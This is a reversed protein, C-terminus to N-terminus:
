RTLRLVGKPRAPLRDVKSMNIGAEAVQRELDERFDPHALDILCRAREELPLFKLHVAGYETVVWETIHEPTTVRTGLAFHPVINSIVTGDSRTTTSPLCVISKGGPSMQSGYAFEFAGGLGSYTTPGICHAMTQGTMDVSLVSNISTLKNIRPHVDPRNVEEVPILAVEPNDAIWEHLRETGLAFTAISKGDYLGKHTNTAAGAELLDIHAECLMETHIGLEKHHKLCAGIAMPLTGFGIQVTARDPVLEAVNDAIKLEVENAPPVPYSMLATDDEVIIDAFEISLENNGHEALGHVYPLKPNVEFVIKTDPRNAKLWPVIRYDASCTMSFNFMGSNSMPGVRVIFYDAPRGFEASRLGDCYNGPTYYIYQNIKRAAREQGGHFGTSISVEPNDMYPSPCTAIACAVHLGNAAEGLENIANIMGYPEGYWVGLSLTNGPQFRQALEACSMKKQDYQQQANSM